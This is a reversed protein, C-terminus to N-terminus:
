KRTKLKPLMAYFIPVTTITLLAFCSVVFNKMPVPSFNRTEPLFPNWEYDNQSYDPSQYDPLPPPRRNSKSPNGFPFYFNGSTTNHVSKQARKKQDVIIRCHECRSKQQKHDCVETEWCIACSGKQRRHACLGQGGCESCLSRRRKHRCVSGGNCLLCHQRQIDHRCVGSGHCLLCHHRQKQHECIASGGCLACNRRFRNHECLETAADGGCQRCRSKRRKHECIGQGECKPCLYSSQRGHPCRVM